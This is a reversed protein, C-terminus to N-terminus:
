STKVESEKHEIRTDLMQYVGCSWGYRVILVAVDPNIEDDLHVLDGDECDDLNLQALIQKFIGGFAVLRKGRLSYSLARVIIDTRATDGLLFDSSKVAYKAIEAVASSLDSLASDSESSNKNRARRVDVQTISQDGYCDRWMQLWESRPIYDEDRFYHKSVALVCHFHPHFLGFSESTPDNNVTIELARFFGKVSKRFRKSKHTLDYWAKFLRSITQPLEDAPVSPVTLTLFVFDFQSSIQAMVRSVQGFIKYSRRWSCMPCLRDKCFNASHLKGKESVVGDSGIEHAFELLTGCDFVRQARFPLALRAYSQSLLLADKRKPVFRTQLETIDGLCVEPVIQAQSQYKEITFDFNGLSSCDGFWEKVATRSHALVRPSEEKELYM